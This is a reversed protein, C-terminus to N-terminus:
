KKRLPVELNNITRWGGERGRQSSHTQALLATGEGVVALPPTDGPLKHYYKCIYFPVPCNFIHMLLQLASTISAKTILLAIQIQIAPESPAKPPELGM